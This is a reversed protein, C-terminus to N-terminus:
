QRSPYPRPNNEVSSNKNLLLCSGLYSRSVSALAGFLESCKTSAEVTLSCSEQEPFSQSERNIPANSIGGPAFPM